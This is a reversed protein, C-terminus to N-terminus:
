EFRVTEMKQESNGPAFVEARNAYLRIRRWMGASVFLAGTRVQLVKRGGDLTLWDVANTHRHGCLIMVVRPAKQLRSRLLQSREDDAVPIHLAIIVRENPKRRLERGLWKMQKEFFVRGGRAELSHGNDLVILRYGPALAASYYTRKHLVPFAGRWQRRVRSAVSQDGAPTAPKAPDFRYCEVDHNGLALHYPHRLRGFAARVASIQGEVAKGSAADFCTADVIDGTHVLTLAPMRNAAEVFANLKGLSARHLDRAKAIAPHVGDLQAVHSDSIHILDTYGPAQSLLLALALASLTM